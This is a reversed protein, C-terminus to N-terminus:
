LIKEDAIHFHIGGWVLTSRRHPDSRFYTRIPTARDPALYDEFITRTVRTTIWWVYEKYNGVDILYEYKDDVWYLLSSIFDVLRLAMETALKKLSLHHQYKEKTTLQIVRHM